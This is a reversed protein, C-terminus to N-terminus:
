YIIDNWIESHKLGDEERGEKREEVILNERSRNIRKRRSALREEREENTESRWPEKQKNRKSECSALHIRM